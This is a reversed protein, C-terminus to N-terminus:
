GLIADGACLHNVIGAVVLEEDVFGVGVKLTIFLTLFGLETSDVHHGSDVGATRGLVLEENLVVGACVRDPPCGFFVLVVVLGDSGSGPIGELSDGVLLERVLSEINDVSEAACVGICTKCYAEHHFHCPLSM